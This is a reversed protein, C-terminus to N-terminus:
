FAVTGQVVIRPAYTELIRATDANGVPASAMPYVGNVLLRAKPTAVFQAGAAIETLRREAVEGPALRLHNAGLNAELWPLLRWGVLSTAGWADGQLVGVAQGAFPPAAGSPIAGRGWAGELRLRWTSKRLQLGGGARTRRVESEGDDRVGTLGFGYVALEDREPHFRRADLLWAAQAWAGVDVGDGVDVQSAAGNTAWGAYSLEIGGLDHADFLQVGLDRFGYARGSFAGEVWPREFLLRDVVNSFRVFDGTLPTAETAEDLTPLKFQGARVRVWPTNYTVSADFLVAGADGVVANQGAGVMVFYNVARDTGPITGRVALRARQVRFTQTADGRGVTNFVAVRGNYPQLPAAELGEVPDALVTEFTPQVFGFVQVATEERGEETGQIMPWNAALAADGLFLSGLALWAPGWCRAKM